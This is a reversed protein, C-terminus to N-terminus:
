KTTVSMHENLKIFVTTFCHLDVHFSKECDNCEFLGAQVCPKHVNIAYNDCEGLGLIHLDSLWVKLRWLVFYLIRLVFRVSFDM